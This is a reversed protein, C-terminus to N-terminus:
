PSEPPLLTRVKERFPVPGFDHAAAWLTDCEEDSLARPTGPLPQLPDAVVDRGQTHPGNGSREVGSGAKKEGSQPHREQAAPRPASLPATLYAAIDNLLQETEPASFTGWTPAQCRIFAVARELLKQPENM